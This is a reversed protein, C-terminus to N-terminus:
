EDRIEQASKGKRAKYKRLNERVGAAHDSKSHKTYAGAGAKIGLVSGAATGIIAGRIGTGSRLRRSIAHGAKGGIIAGAGYGGIASAAMGGKGKRKENALAIGDRTLARDRPAAIKTMEDNYALDAVKDLYQERGM